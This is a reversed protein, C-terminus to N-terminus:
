SSQSPNTKWSGQQMLHFFSFRRWYNLLIPKLRIQSISQVVDLISLTSCFTICIGVNIWANLWKNRNPRWFFFSILYGTRDDPVTLLSCKQLGCIQVFTNTDFPQGCRCKVKPPPPSPPPSAVLNGLWHGCNLDAYRGRYTHVQITDILSRLTGFHTFTVTSSITLYVEPGQFM